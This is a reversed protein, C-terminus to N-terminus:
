SFNIAPSTRIREIVDAIDKNDAILRGSMFGYLEPEEYDMLLSKFAVKHADSADMYYLDLYRLMLQDLEKMGRRCRWKLMSIENVDVNSPMDYVM